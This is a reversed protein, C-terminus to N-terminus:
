CSVFNHCFVFPFFIAVKPIIISPTLYRGVSPDIFVKIGWKAIVAAEMRFFSDRIRDNECSYFSSDSDPTSAESDMSVLSDSSEKSAISITRGYVSSIYAVEPTRGWEDLQHPDYMAAKGEQEM